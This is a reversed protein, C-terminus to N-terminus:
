FLNHFINLTLWLSVWEKTKKTLKSCIEYRASTNRNNVKLLNIGVPYSKFEIIVGKEQRQKLLIRFCHSFLVLPTNLVSNSLSRFVGWFVLVFNCFGNLNLSFLSFILSVTTLQNLHNRNEKRIQPAVIFILCEQKKQTMGAM